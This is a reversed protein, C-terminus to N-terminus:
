TSRHRVRTDGYQYAVLEAIVSVVGCVRDDRKILLRMCTPEIMNNPTDTDGARLLSGLLQAEDICINPM